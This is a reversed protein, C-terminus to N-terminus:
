QLRCQNSSTVFHCIALLTDGLVCVKLILQIKPHTHTFSHLTQQCAATKRKVKSNMKFSFDENPGQMSPHEFFAVSMNEIVAQLTLVKLFFFLHYSM